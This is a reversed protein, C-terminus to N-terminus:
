NGEHPSVVEINLGRPLYGHRRRLIQKAEEISEVTFYECVKVIM